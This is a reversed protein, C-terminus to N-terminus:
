ITIASPKGAANRLEVNWRSFQCVKSGNKEEGEQKFMNLHRSVTQLFWSNSRKRMVENTQWVEGSM